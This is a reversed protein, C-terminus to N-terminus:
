KVSRKGSTLARTRSLANKPCVAVCLNCKLCDSDAIIEKEMKKSQYPSLQMPCINSCLQCETCFRSTFQLPKRKGGIWGAAIGAPCIFCWSRQHFIIALAVGIITTISMLIIFFRGIAAPDPWRSLINSVFILCLLFFIIKRFRPNKFAEPIKGQSSIPKILTDYFSGRPCLWDCWKRGNFIAIAMSLLFCLPVFYGLVPWIWGGLLIFIFVGSLILQRKKRKKKLILFEDM